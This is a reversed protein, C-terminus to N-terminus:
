SINCRYKPFQIRSCHLCDKRIAIRDNRCSYLIVEGIRYMNDRNVEPELQNRIIKRCEGVVSDLPTRHLIFVFQNLCWIRFQDYAKVQEEAEGLSPLSTTPFLNEEILAKYFIDMSLDVGDLYEKNGLTIHLPLIEVGCQDKEEQKISSGSDVFIRLM